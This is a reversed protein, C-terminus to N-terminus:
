RKYGGWGLEIGEKSVVISDPSNFCIEEAWKVAVDVISEGDTCVANCLGWEKAEQAPVDRGTLAMEMARMRGVIRTLRPLAGALAVVGRKAEPLAFVASPSALVIDCNIIMECGGGHALGNVAAIVPKRGRRRSLGGFGSPSLPKQPTAGPKQSENWEKLDAGACFARGEGTVIGVRISPEADLWTWVAHLEQNGASNICNLSKPRCLTVILTHPNPFSLRAFDTPPPPIQFSPRAMITASAPITM